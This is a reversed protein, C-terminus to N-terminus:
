RDIPPAYVLGQLRQVPVIAAGVIQLGVEVPLIVDGTELRRAKPM